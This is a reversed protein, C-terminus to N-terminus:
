HIEVLESVKLIQKGIVGNILLNIIPVYQLVNKRCRGGDILICGLIVELVSREHKVRHKLANGLRIQIQTPLYRDDSTTFVSVLKVIEEETLSAVEEYLKNAHSGILNDIFDKSVELPKHGVKITEKWNWSILQTLVGTYLNAHGSELIADIVPIILAAENTNRSFRIANRLKSAEVKNDPYSKVIAIVEDSTLKDGKEKLLKIKSSLENSNIALTDPALEKEIQTPYVDGDSLVGLHTFYNISFRGEKYFYMKLFGWDNKNPYVDIVVEMTRIYDNENEIKVLLTEM